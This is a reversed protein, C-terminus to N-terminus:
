HKQFFICAGLFRGHQTFSVHVNFIDNRVFIRFIKKLNYSNMQMLPTNPSEGKLLYSFMRFWMYRQKLLAINNKIISNSNDFTLHIMGFGKKSLVAILKEVIKYGDKQPIHQLVIFTHVFDFSQQFDYNVVDNTGILEINKIGRQKIHKAAEELMSESIDVGFVKKSYKALPIIIRGIGCGFDLANEFHPFTELNFFHQIRSLTDITYEEGSLFFEKLTNDNIAESKYKEDTCVSFYPEKKGFKEWSQDNM